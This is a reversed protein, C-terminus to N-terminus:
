PLACFAFIRMAPSTLGNTLTRGTGKWFAFSGGDTPVTGNGVDNVSPRSALVEMEQAGTAPVNSVNVSGGIIKEGPGCTAFGSAVTGPVPTAAQPLPVDTRRVIVGTLLGDVGDVGDVGNVGNTGPPGTQGIPGQAGPAGTPGTAGTAGRPGTPVQGLAFDKALLSGNKVKGSTVSSDGLDTNKVAKFKIQPSGVSNRALTAAYSTGGLAIMVAVMSMVNAFSLKGRISEMM